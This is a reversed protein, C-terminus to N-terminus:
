FAPKLTARFSDTKLKASFVEGDGKDSTLLSGTYSPMLPPFKKDVAIEPRFDFVNGAAIAKPLDVDINMEKPAVAPLTIAADAVYDNGSQRLGVDKTEIQGTVSNLYSMHFYGDCPGQRDPPNPRRPDGSGGCASLALTLVGLCLGMLVIQKKM